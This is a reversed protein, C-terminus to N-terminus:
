SKTQLLNVMAPYFGFRAYFGFVPANECLVNISRVKVNEADFWELARKVLRTGVGKKRYKEKVFLSEIEGTEQAIMSSICYGIFGQSNHASVVDIKLRRTRSKELLYSKNDAFTRESLARSFRSSVAVSHDNLKEWLLRVEDIEALSITDFFFDTM